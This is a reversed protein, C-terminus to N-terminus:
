KELSKEYALVAKPLKSGAFYVIHWPEVLSGSAIEWCFGFRAANKLLWAVGSKMPGSGDPDASITVTQGNVKLAADIALGWGHNSTGPVAALAVGQKLYYRRGNWVRVVEPVRGTPATSFRARFLAEQEAYSRYDGVQALHVGDAWADHRMAAWARAAKHHLVGSPKIPSLMKEPLLGNKKGVLDLPKKITRVPFTM